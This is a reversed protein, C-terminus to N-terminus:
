RRFDNPPDQDALFQEVAAGIEEATPVSAGGNAALQDYQEELAAVMAPFEADEGTEAEINALNTESAQHLPDMPIDLGAAAAIRGVVAATAQPFNSQALYHPVHAVFGQALLGAQGSRYEVVHSFSGPLQVRDIWMPNGSALAPDTAHATVLTPRTHPVAMPVGACTLLQSVGLQGALQLVAAAARNWQSDPEPGTLLLFPRGNVDLLRHVLLAYDTLDAWHNTDFVMQPRRSRYDHLQDHDFTALVQHECTDLLYRATSHTVSGADIYGDFLHILAPRTGLVSAAVDPELHYLSSPDLM